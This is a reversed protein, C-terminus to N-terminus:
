SRPPTSQTYYKFFVIKYMVNPRDKKNAFWFKFQLGRAIVQDGIRMAYSSTGTNNDAYGQRTYLLNTVITELNHYLDTNEVIQHTNKTEAQRLSISKVMKAVRKMSIGRPKRVVLSRRKLRYRSAKKARYVSPVPM